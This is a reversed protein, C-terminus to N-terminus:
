APDAAVPQCGEIDLLYRQAATTRALLGPTLYDRQVLEPAGDRRGVAFHLLRRQGGSVNLTGGHWIHGNIVCITGPSGMVKIEAPHPALADDPLLAREEATAVQRQALIGDDDNGDPVNLPPWRHSCPVLRTPGNDATVEDLMIMTNVVQWDDDGIRPADSHLLQQGHGKAPNRGNLSYIKIEGMLRHAAALTANCRFSLDFVPSKNYLDIIFVGGPEINYGDFAKAAKEEWRDYERRLLEVEDPGFVGPILFYGDQDLREALDAALSDIGMEALAEATNM